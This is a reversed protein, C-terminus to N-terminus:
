TAVVTKSIPDEVNCREKDFVIKLNNKCIMRNVSLLNHKFDPVLLVHDLFIGPLVETKGIEHVLKIRGDPLGIKIPDRLTIVDHLLAKSGTMHDSAGTNMIWVNECKNQFSLFAKGAFNSNSPKKEMAKIVKQVFTSIMNPDVKNSTSTQEFSEELPTETMSDNNQKNVNMVMKNNSNFKNGGNTKVEKGKGRPKDFWEPYGVLKFCEEKTHGRLFFHDCKKRM